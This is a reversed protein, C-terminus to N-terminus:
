RELNEPLLESHPVLFAITHYVGAKESLLAMYYYSPCILGGLTLGDANTTPYLGDNAKKVGTFNTLLRDTTGGKVSMFNTTHAMSPPVDGIQM